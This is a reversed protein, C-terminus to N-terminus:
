LVSNWFRPLNTWAVEVRSKLPTLMNPPAAKSTVTFLSPTEFKL